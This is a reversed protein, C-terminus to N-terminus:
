KAHRLGAGAVPLQREERLRSLLSQRRRVADAGAHPPDANLEPTDVEVEQGAAAPMTCASANRGNVIVTCLKCSGHPKFEPHHCLHPIYIGAALAAELITQGATFPVPGRRHHIDDDTASM